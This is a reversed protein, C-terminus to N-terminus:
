VARSRRDRKLNPTRGRRGRRRKWRWFGLGSGEGERELGSPTERPRAKSEGLSGSPNRPYAMRGGGGGGELNGSGSSAIQDKEKERHSLGTRLAKASFKRHDRAGDTTANRTAPARNRGSAPRASHQSVIQKPEAPENAHPKIAQPQTHSLKPTTNKQM